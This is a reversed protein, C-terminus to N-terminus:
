KSVPKGFFLRGFGFHKKLTNKVGTSIENVNSMIGQTECLVNNTLPITVNNIQQTIDEINTTIEKINKTSDIINLFSQKTPDAEVMNKVILSTKRLNISTQAINSAVVKIDPRVDTIVGRVEVFIGNLSEIAKSANDILSAADDVIVDINENNFKEQLLENIDKTIFGKIEDNERLKTLSPNDPYIVDVYTGSHVKRIKVTANSPLNIKGRYLRMNLYTNQYDADPYIKTTKGIKFGKFYVNMQKEFQELEDFKVVINIFAFKAYLLFLTILTILIIMITRLRAM